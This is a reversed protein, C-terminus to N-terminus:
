LELDAVLNIFRRILYPFIQAEYRMVCRIAISVVSKNMSCM